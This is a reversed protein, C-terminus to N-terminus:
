GRWKAASGGGNQQRASQSIADNDPDPVWPDRVALELEVPAAWIECRPPQGVMQQSCDCGSSLCIRQRYYVPDM